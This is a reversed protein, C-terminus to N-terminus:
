SWGNLREILEPWSGWEPQFFFCEWLKITGVSHKVTSITLENHCDTKM